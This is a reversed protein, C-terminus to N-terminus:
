HMYLIDAHEDRFRIRTIEATLVTVVYLSQWAAGVMQFESGASRVSLKLLM